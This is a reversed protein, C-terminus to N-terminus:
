VLYGRHFNNIKKMDFWKKMYNALKANYIIVNVANADKRIHVNAKLGFVNFVIDVLKKIKDKHDKNLIIGVKHNSVSYGDGAYLGFVM